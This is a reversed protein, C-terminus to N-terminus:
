VFGQQSGLAIVRPALGHAHSRSAVGTRHWQPRILCFCHAYSTRESFDHFAGSAPYFHLARCPLWARLSRGTTCRAAFCGDVITPAEASLAGVPAKAASCLPLSGGGNDLARQCSSPTSPPYARLPSQPGPEGPWPLHRKSLPSRRCRTFVPVACARQRALRSSDLSPPVHSSRGRARQRHRELALRRRSPALRPRTVALEVWM